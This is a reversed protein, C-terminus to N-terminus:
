RFGIKHLLEKLCCALYGVAMDQVIHSNKYSLSKAYKLVRESRLMSESANYKMTAADSTAIMDNTQVVVQATNKVIVNWMKAVIIQKSGDAINKLRFVSTM